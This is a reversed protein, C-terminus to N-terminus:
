SQDLIAMYDGSELLTKGIIRIIDNTLGPVLGATHKSNTEKTKDLYVSSDRLRDKSKKFKLARRVEGPETSTGIVLRGADFLAMKDGEAGASRYSALAGRYDGSREMAHGARWQGSPRPGMQPTACGFLLALVAIMAASLLMKRYM